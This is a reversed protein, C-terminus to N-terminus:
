NVEFRALELRNHNIKRLHPQVSTNPNRRHGPALPSLEPSGGFSAAM